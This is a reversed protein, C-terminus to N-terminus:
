GAGVRASLLPIAIRRRMVMQRSASDATATRAVAGTADAAFFFEPGFGFIVRTVGIRTVTPLTRVIRPWCKLALARLFVMMKRAFLPRVAKAFGRRALLVLSTTRTGAETARRSVTLFLLCFGVRSFSRTSAPLNLAYM